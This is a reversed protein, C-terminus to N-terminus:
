AYVDVRGRAAVPPISPPEALAKPPPTAEAEAVVPVLQQPVQASIAAVAGVNM